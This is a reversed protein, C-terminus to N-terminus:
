RADSEDDDVSTAGMLDLETLLELRREIPIKTPDFGDDDRDEDSLKITQLAKGFCRDMLEQACAFRVRPPTTADRLWALLQDVLEAGDRTHERIYRAIAMPARVQRGGANGTQGPKFGAGKLNDLPYPM